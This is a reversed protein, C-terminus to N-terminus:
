AWRICSEPIWGEEGGNLRVYLWGGLQEVAVAEVGVAVTLERANYSRIGVTQGTTAALFSEHVWGKKGADNRCWYWTPFKSDPSEVEVSEGQMISIPDAYTASHAEVVVVRKVASTRRGLAETSNSGDRSM